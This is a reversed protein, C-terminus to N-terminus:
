LDQEEGYNVCSRSTVPAITKELLRTAIEQATTNLIMETSAYHAPQVVVGIKQYIDEILGCVRDVDDVMTMMIPRQTDLFQATPFHFNDDFIIPVVCAGNDEAVTLSKLIYGLQFIGNTGIFLLGKAAAPLLANPPLEAVCKQEFALIPRLLMCIIHATAAAETNTHDVLVFIDASQSVPDDSESIKANDQRSTDKSICRHHSVLEKCVSEVMANSLLGQLTIKPQILLWRLAAQVMDMNIGHETLLSVDVHENYKAILHEDPLTTDPWIILSARGTKLQTTVIEGLCWPRKLVDRSCLVATMDSDEGVYGFLKTLDKLDDSDIFARWPKGTGSEVTALRMKLLRAVSGAGQKHHCLFFNYPKQRRAFRYYLGYLMFWVFAVLPILVLVNALHSVFSLEETQVYCLGLSLVILTAVHMFVDLANTMDARWPTVHIVTGLSILVLMQLIIVQQVPEKFAPVAAILTNMILFFPGYWYASPKYHLFVFQFAHLFVVDGNNMRKRFNIVAWICISIFGLPLLMSLSGVVAMTTHEGGEDCIISKSSQITWKGNPHGICQFPTLMTAVISLNFAKMLAGMAAVLSSARNGLHWRFRGDKAVVRMVLLLHIVCIAAIGMFVILVRIIYKGVNSFDGICGPRLVAIDFAFLRFFDLTSAIPETWEISLQAIVGFKQLFTAMQVITLAMVMFGAHHEATKHSNTVVYLGVLVLIAGVVAVFFGAKDGGRCPVCTGDDQPVMGEQCDVCGISTSLRGAACTGPQGGPCRPENGYCRFVSLPADASSWFGPLLNIHEPHLKQALKLKRPDMDVPWNCNLGEPCPECNGAGNAGKFQGVECKLQCNPPVGAYNSKCQCLDGSTFFDEYNEEPFREVYYALDGVHGYVQPDIDLSVTTRDKAVWRPCVFPCILVGSVDDYEFDWRCGDQLVKEPKFYAPVRLGAFSPKANPNHDLRLRTMFKAPINALDAVTTFNNYSFDYVSIDNEASNELDGSVYFEGPGLNNHAFNVVRLKGLVLLAGASAQSLQNHSMDIYEIYPGCFAAFWNMISNVSPVPDGNVIGFPPTMLQNHSLDLHRMEPKNLLGPLTGNPSEINNSGLRLERLDAMAQWEAPVTGSFNNFSLDLVKLRGTNKFLPLHGSLEFGTSGSLHFEELNPCDDFADPPVEGQLKNENADFGQFFPKGKLKTGIIDPFDGELKNKPVALVELSPPLDGLSTLENNKIILKKLKPLTSIANWPLETLKVNSVVLEELNPLDKISCEPITITADFGQPNELLLSLLSTMQSMECPLTIGDYWVQWGLNLVKLGTLLGIEPPLSKIRSFLLHPTILVVRGNECWVGFLRPDKSCPDYEPDDELIHWMPQGNGGRMWEVDMNLSTSGYLIRTNGTEPDTGDAAKNNPHAEMANYLAILAQRDQPDIPGSGPFWIKVTDNDQLMSEFLQRDSYRVCVGPIDIPQNGTPDLFRDLNYGVILTRSDLDQQSHGLGPSYLFAAAGNLFLEQPGMAWWCDNPKYEYMVITGAIPRGTHRSLPSVPFGNYSEPCGNPPDAMTLELWQGGEPFGWKGMVAPQHMIQGEKGRSCTGECTWNFYVGTSYNQNHWNGYTNIAAKVQEHLTVLVLVAPKVRM